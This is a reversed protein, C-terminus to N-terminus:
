MEPEEEEEEETATSDLSSDVVEPGHAPLQGVGQRQAGQLIARMAFLRMLEAEITGVEAEWGEPASEVGDSGGAAEEEEEDQQQQRGRRAAKKTHQQHGEDQVGQEELALQKASAKRVRKGLVGQM